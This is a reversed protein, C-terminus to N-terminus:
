HTAPASLEFWSRRMPAKKFTTAEIKYEAGPPVTVTGSCTQLYKDKQDDHMVLMNNIYIKLVCDKNNKGVNQISVVVEIPFGTTNYYLTNEERNGSQDRWIRKYPNILWLEDDSTDVIYLKGDHSTMAGPKTLGSPLGTTAGGVGSTSDPDAPNILWLEDDSSDLIYLKGNHSAMANASMLESPLKGVYEYVGSTSDPDAPNILWLEDHRRSKEPPPKPLGPGPPKPLGPGPPEPVIIRKPEPVIIRKPEPVIIYYSSINVIYLKGNHSTMAGPKTLGSPLKGVLGYSPAAPGPPGQPGPPGPINIQISDDFNAGTFNAKDLIANTFNASTLDADSLIADSLIANTLDARRLVAETLKASTLVANSLDANTLDAKKLKASILDASTLNASILDASTLDADSLDTSSLNANTLDAKSLDADELNASTLNARTLNASRLDAKTLDVSTLDERRLSACILNCGSCKRDRKLMEILVDLKPVDSPRQYTSCDITQAHSFESVGLTFGFAILVVALLLYRSM